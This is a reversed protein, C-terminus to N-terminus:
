TTQPDAGGEGGNSKELCPESEFNNPKSNQYLRETNLDKGSLKETEANLLLRIDVLIGPLIAQLDQVAELDLKRRMQKHVELMAALLAALHRRLTSEAMGHARESLAINSPFAILSDNDSLATNPHFSVLANLVALDRDTVEFARRATCLDRLLEWKGSVM